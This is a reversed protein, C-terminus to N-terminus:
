TYDTCVIDQTGGEKGKHYCHFPTCHIQPEKPVVHVDHGVSAVQLAVLPVCFRSSVFNHVGEQTCCSKSMPVCHLVDDIVIFM